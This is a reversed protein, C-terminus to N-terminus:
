RVRVALRGGSGARCVLSVPCAASGAFPSGAVGTKVTVFVFRCSCQGTSYPPPDLSLVEQRAPPIDMGFDGLEYENTIWVIEAKDRVKGARPEFELNVVYEFAAGECTCTGHGVSLTPSRPQRACRVL